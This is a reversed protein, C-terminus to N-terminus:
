SKNTGRPIRIVECEDRDPHRTTHDDLHPRLELRVPLVSHGQALHEEVGDANWTERGVRGRRVQAVPVAHARHDGIGLRLPFWPGPEAVVGLREPEQEALDNAARGALRDRGQQALAEGTREPAVLDM